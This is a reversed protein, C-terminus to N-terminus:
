VDANDAEVQLGLKLRMLKREMEKVAIYGQEHATNIAMTLLQHMEILNPHEHNITSQLDTVLKAKDFM